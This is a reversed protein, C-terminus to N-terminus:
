GILSMFGDWRKNGPRTIRDRSVAQEVEKLMEVALRVSTFIHVSIL